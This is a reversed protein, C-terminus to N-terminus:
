SCERFILTERCFALKSDLVNPAVGIGRNRQFLEAIELARRAAIEGRKSLFQQFFVVRAQADNKSIEGEGGVLVSALGRQSSFGGPELSIKPLHVVREIAFLDAQLLAGFVRSNNSDYAPM